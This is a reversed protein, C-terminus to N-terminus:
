PSQGKVALQFLTPHELFTYFAKELFGSLNDFAPVLNIGGRRALKIINDLGTAWSLRDIQLFDQNVRKQDADSLKLWAEFVSGEGGRKTKPLETFDMDKLLGRDHFYRGLLPKPAERFFRPPQYYRTRAM